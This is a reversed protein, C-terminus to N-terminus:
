VDFLRLMKISRFSCCHTIKNYCNLLLIILGASASQKWRFAKEGGWIRIPRRLRVNTKPIVNPNILNYSKSCNSWTLAAFVFAVLKETIEISKWNENAIVNSMSYNTFFITCLRAYSLRTWTRLSGCLLNPFMQARGFAFLKADHIGNIACLFIELTKPRRVTVIVVVSVCRITHHYTCM